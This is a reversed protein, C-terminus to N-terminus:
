QIIKESLTAERIFGAELPTKVAEDLDSFLCRSVFVFGFQYSAVVM